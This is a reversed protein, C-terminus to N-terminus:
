IETLGLIGFEVETFNFLIRHFPNYNCPYVQLYGAKQMKANPSFKLVPSDTHTAVVKMSATKPDFKDGVSFALLSTLNRTLFYKCGPMLKTWPESNYFKLTAYYRENIEKFGCGGLKKKALEVVHYPSVGFNLNEIIKKSFDQGIKFAEM